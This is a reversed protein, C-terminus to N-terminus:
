EARVPNLAFMRCRGRRGYSDLPFFRLVTQEDSLEDYALAPLLELPCDPGHREVPERCPSYTSGHLCRSCWHEVYSARAVADRREIV